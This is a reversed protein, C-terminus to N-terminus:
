AGTVVVRVKAQAEDSFRLTVDHEGVSKIASDIIVVDASVSEGILESLEKAIMDADISAFLTGNDHKASITITKGDLLGTVRQAQSKKEAIEQARRERDAEQRAIQQKTAVVAVGRRLLNNRAFGDSVECIDGARGYGDIDKTLIVTIM